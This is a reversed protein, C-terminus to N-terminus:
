AASPTPSGDSAPLAEAAVARREDETLAGWVGYDASLARAAARCERQVPCRSCVAKARAVQALAPGGTGVPFFLEPDVGRCTARHRWDRRGTESM